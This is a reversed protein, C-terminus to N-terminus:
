KNIGRLNKRENVHYELHHTRCLSRIEMPKNYDDHHAEISEETGCIECPGKKLVGTRIYEETIKRVARKWKAIASKDAKVRLLIEEPTRHIARWKRGDEAKCSLCFYRQNPAREAGCKCRGTQLKQIRGTELGWKKARQNRCPNCYIQKPNQKLAGCDSCNLSKPPSRDSLGKPIRETIGKERRNETRCKQCYSQKERGPEKTEKCRSCYISRAM